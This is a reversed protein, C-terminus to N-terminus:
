SGRTGKGSGRSRTRTPSKDPASIGGYLLEVLLEPLGAHKTGPVLRAILFQPVIGVAAVVPLLLLPQIDDRISGDRVGDALAKMVLPIHGRQFRALISKLRTSSVLVERIVLRVVEAELDSIEAIRRYIALIRERPALAPDIARTLEDLLTVYTSEVVALFLEDKTKFYYYVMGISTGADAAIARLSAGDVGERLFRARAADLIRPEIDSRTRGM